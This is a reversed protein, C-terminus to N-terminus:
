EHVTRSDRLAQVVAVFAMDGLDPYAKGGLKSIANFIVDDANFLQEIANTENRARALSFQHTQIMYGLLHLKIRDFGNTPLDFRIVHEHFFGWLFQLEISLILEDSFAFGLNAESLARKQRAVMQDALEQGTRMAEDAMREVFPDAIRRRFFGFM